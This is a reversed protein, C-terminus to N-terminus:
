RNCLIGCRALAEGASADIPACFPDFLGDFRARECTAFCTEHGRPSGFGEACGLDRLHECFNACQTGPVEDAAADLPGPAADVTPPNAQALCEARTAAFISAIVFLQRM